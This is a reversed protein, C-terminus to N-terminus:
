ADNQSQKNLTRTVRLIGKLKLDKCNNVEYIEGQTSGLQIEVKLSDKEYFNNVFTLKNMKTM